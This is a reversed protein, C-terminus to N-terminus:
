GYNPYAFIQFIGILLNWLIDVLGFFYVLNASLEGNKYFM